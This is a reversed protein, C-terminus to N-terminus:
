PAFCTYFKGNWTPKGLFTQAPSGPSRPSPSAGRSTGGGGAVALGPSFGGVGRPESWALRGNSPRVFVPSLSVSTASIGSNGHSRTALPSSVASGAASRPPSDSRPPSPSPAAGARGRRGASRGGPRIPPAPSGPSAPSSFHQLARKLPSSSAARAPPAEKPPVEASSVAQGPLAVGARAAQDVEANPQCLACYSNPLGGQTPRGCGPELCIGAVIRCPKCCYTNPETSGTAKGCGVRMCIHEPELSYRRCVEDVLAQRARRVTQQWIHAKNATHGQGSGLDILNAIWSAWKDQGALRDRIIMLQLGLWNAGEGDWNDSWIGDCGKVSNHKLLFADRTRLLEKAMDSGPRFKADLVALMGKWDSGFGAYTLDERAGLPAKQQLAEHGSLRAFDEAHAWFKLAKFAAEANRFSRATSRDCPATMTIGKPTLDHSNGLFASCCLTDWVEECHFGVVSVDSGELPRRPDKFHVAGFKSVQAEELRREEELRRRSRARQRALCRDEIAWYIRWLLRYPWTMAWYIAWCTRELLHGLLHVLTHAGQRLGKWIAPGQRLGKWVAVGICLCAVVVGALAVLILDIPPGSSESDGRATIADIPPAGTVEIGTVEVLGYAAEQVGFHRLRQTLLRTMAQKDISSMSSSAAAAAIEDVLRITFSARVTRRFSSTLRRRGNALSFTVDIDEVSVGATSAISWRLADSVLPDRVFVLANSVRLDIWGILTITKGFATATTRTTSVTTSENTTHPTLLSTTTTHPSVNTISTLLSTSSTTNATGNARNANDADIPGANALTSSAAFVTTTTTTTMAQTTTSNYESANHWSTYMTGTVLGALRAALAAVLAPATSRM